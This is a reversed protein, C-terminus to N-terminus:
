NLIYEGMLYKDYYVIWENIHTLSDEMFLVLWHIQIEVTECKAGLDTLHDM